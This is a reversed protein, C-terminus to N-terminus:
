KFQSIKANEGKSILMGCELYNLIRTVDKFKFLNKMELNENPQTWFNRELTCKKSYYVYM